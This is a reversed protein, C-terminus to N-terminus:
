KGIAYIVRSLIAIVEGQIYRHEHIIADHLAERVGRADGNVAKLFSAVAEKTSNHAV